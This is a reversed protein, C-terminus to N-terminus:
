YPQDLVNKLWAKWNPRKEYKSALLYYKRTEATPAITGGNVYALNEYYVPNNPDLEIAWKLEAKAKKSEDRQGTITTFINITIGLNNHLFASKSNIAIGAEFKSRADKYNQEKYKEVGEENLKIEKPEKLCYWPKEKEEIQYKLGFFQDVEVEQAPQRQQRQPLIYGLIFTILPLFALFTKSSIVKWIKHWLGKKIKKEKM